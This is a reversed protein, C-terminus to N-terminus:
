LAIHLRIVIYWVNPLMNKILVMSSYWLSICPIKNIYNTHSISETLWHLPTEVNQTSCSQCLCPKHIEIWVEHTRCSTKCNHFCHLNNNTNIKYKTHIHQTDMCWINTEPSHLLDCGPSLTPKKGQHWNVIWCLHVPSKGRQRVANGGEKGEKWMSYFIKEKM